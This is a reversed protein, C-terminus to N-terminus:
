GRCLSALAAGRSCSSKAVRASVAAEITAREEETVIFAMQGADPMDEDEIDPLAADDASALLKDLGLDGFADNGLSAQVEGLLAQLEDTFEGGVHPNNAAINAAKEQAESWDVVRVTFRKGDKGVRLVPNGDESFLQAGLKKLQEVRQHGCVLHGTRENWVIGAIDGFRSMSESLGAAAPEGIRRPNYPAATLQEVSNLLAKAM